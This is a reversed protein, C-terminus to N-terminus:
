FFFGASKSGFSIIRKRKKLSPIKRFFILWGRENQIEGLMDSECIVKRMDDNQRCIERVDIRPAETM